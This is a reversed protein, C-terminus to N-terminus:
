GEEPLDGLLTDWTMLGMIIAGALVAWGFPERWIVLSVFSFIWFTLNTFAILAIYLWIRANMNVKM